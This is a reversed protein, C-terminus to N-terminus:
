IFKKIIVKNNSMLYMYFKNTLLALSIHTINLLLDFLFLVAERVTLPWVDDYMM